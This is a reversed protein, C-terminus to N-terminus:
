EVRSYRKRQRKGFYGYLTTPYPPPPSRVSCLTNSLHLFQPWSLTASKGLCVSCHTASIFSGDIARKCCLM